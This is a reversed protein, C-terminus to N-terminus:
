PQLTEVVDGSTSYWGAYLFIGRSFSCATGGHGKSVGTVDVIHNRTRTAIELQQLIGRGLTYSGQVIESSRIYGM